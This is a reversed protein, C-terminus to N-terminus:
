EWRAIADLDIVRANSQPPPPPHYAKWLLVALVGLVGLSLVVPLLLWWTPWWWLHRSGPHSSDWANLLGFFAAVGITAVAVVLGWLLGVKHEAM